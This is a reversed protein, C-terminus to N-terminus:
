FHKLGKMDSFDKLVALYHTSGDGGTYSRVTLSWDIYLDIPTSKTVFFFLFFSLFVSKWFQGSFSYVLPRFNHVCIFHVKEM